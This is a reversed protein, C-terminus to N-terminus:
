KERYGKDLETIVVIIVALRTVTGVIFAKVTEVQAVPGDM